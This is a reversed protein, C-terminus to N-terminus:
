SWFLVKILEIRVLLPVWSKSPKVMATLKNEGVSIVLRDVACKNLSSVMKVEPLDRSAPGPFHVQLEGHEPGPKEVSENIDARRTM